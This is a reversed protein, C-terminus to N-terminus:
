DFADVAVAFLGHIAACKIPAAEEAQYEDRAAATGCQDPNIADGRWAYLYLTLLLCSRKHIAQQQWGLL